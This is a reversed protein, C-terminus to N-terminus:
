GGSTNATMHLQKDGGRGRFVSTEWLPLSATVGTGRKMVCSHAKTARATLFHLVGEHGGRHGARAVEEHAEAGESLVPLSTSSHVNAQQWSTGRRSERVVM